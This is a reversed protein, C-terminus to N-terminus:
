FNAPEDYEVSESDQGSQKSDNGNFNDSSLPITSRRSVGERRNFITTNSKTQQEGDAFRRLQDFIRAKDDIARNRENDEIVEKEDLEKVKSYALTPTKLGPLEPGMDTPIKWKLIKNQIFGFLFYGLAVVIIGVILSILIIFIYIIGYAM